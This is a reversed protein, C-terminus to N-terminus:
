FPQAKSAARLGKSRWNIYISAVLVGLMTASISSIGANLLRPHVVLIWGTELSAAVLTVIGWYGLLASASPTPSALSVPMKWVAYGIILGGVVSSVLAVLQWLPIARDGLRVLDASEPVASTILTNYHTFSDWFLHMMAGIVISLIVGWLHQHCYNPWNFNTYQGLRRYLPAPLHAVLPRRVLMHFIFALGLSVPCSFYFISGITHSHQSALKLRFFKEADPAMSGTILGTASLWKYRRRAYLLPVILAPHSFTFPM